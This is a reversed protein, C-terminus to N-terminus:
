PLIGPVFSVSLSVGFSNLTFPEFVGGSLRIQNFFRLYALGMVSGYYISTSHTFGSWDMSYSFLHSLVYAGYAHGLKDINLAYTWDNEFRFPARPGQWWGRARTSTSRPWRAPPSRVWSLLVDLFYGRHTM